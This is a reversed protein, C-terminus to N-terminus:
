VTPLIRDIEGRFQESLSEWTYREDALRHGNAGITERLSPEEGLRQVADLFSQRDAIVIDEDDTLQFGRAGFPTSVTPLAAAFYEMLKVNSGGGSFIPNLAIDAMELTAQLDEVYGPTHVDAAPAEIANGADGIVLLHYGAPTQTWHDALWEAATINPGYDSGLFVAVTGAEPIGFESRPAPQAQSDVKASAIGNPIVSVSSNYKRYEERDSKTTCVVMDSKAVAQQEVTRLNDVLAEAIRGSGTSSFRQYEVNHSSYVVPTGSHEALFRALYPNDAMSVDHETAASLLADGAWTRFIFPWAFAPLGFLNAGKPLDHLLSYKRREVIDPAVQEEKPLLEGEKYLTAAPGALCFRRVTDGFSPFSTTLGHTRQYGGTDPPYSKNGVTAQFVNM